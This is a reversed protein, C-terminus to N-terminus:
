GSHTLLPALTSVDRVDELNRALKLLKESQEADIVVAALKRFKGADFRTCCTVSPLIRTRAM